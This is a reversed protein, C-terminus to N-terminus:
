LEDADQTSLPEQALDNSALAAEFATLALSMRSSRGTQYALRAAEALDLAALLPATAPENHTHKGKVRLRLEDITM